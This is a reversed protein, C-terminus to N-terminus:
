PKLQDGSTLEYDKVVRGLEPNGRAHAPWWHWGKEKYREGQLNKFHGRVLHFRHHRHEEGTSVGAPHIIKKGSTAIKLVRYSIPPQHGNRRHKKALGAPAHIVETQINRCHLLSFSLFAEHGVYCPLDEHKGDSMLLPIGLLTPMREMKTLGLRYGKIDTDDESLAFLGFGREAVVDGAHVNFHGNAPELKLAKTIVMSLYFKYGVMASFKAMNRGEDEAIIGALDDMSIKAILVARQYKFRIFYPQGQKVETEEMMKNDVDLTKEDHWECWVYDHPPRKPIPQSKGEDWDPLLPIVNSIEYVQANSFARAWYVDAPNKPDVVGTRRIEDYFRM